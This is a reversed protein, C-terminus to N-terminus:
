GCTSSNGVLDDLCGIAGKISCSPVMCQGSGSEGPRGTTDHEDSHTSRTERNRLRDPGNQVPPRAPPSPVTSPRGRPPATVTAPPLSSMGPELTEARLPVEMNYELYKQLGSDCYLHERLAPCRDHM